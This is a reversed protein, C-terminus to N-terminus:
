LVEKPIKALIREVGNGDVLTNGTISMKVRRSYDTSIKRVAKRIDNEKVDEIYGLYQMTGAAAFEINPQIESEYQTIVLAPTGTMAAEYKTLGGGLIALDAWLLLDAMSKGSELFEFKALSAAVSKELDMINDRSYGPGLVVRVHLNDVQMGAIARVVIGTSNKLDSGGFSILINQVEKRIEHQAKVMDLFEKRFFFYEPGTIHQANSFFPLHGSDIIYPNIILDSVLIGTYLVDLTVVFTDETKLKRHYTSYADPDSSTILFGLDTFILRTSHNRATELTCSADDDLDYRAPIRETLFGYNKVTIIVTPDLDKILFVPYIGHDRLGQALAICRMIHGMGIQPSGDVRLIATKKTKGPDSIRFFTM